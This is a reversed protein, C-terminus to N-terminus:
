LANTKLKQGLLDHLNQLQFRHLQRQYIGIHISCFTCNLIHLAFFPFLTFSVLLFTPNFPPNLTTGSGNWVM